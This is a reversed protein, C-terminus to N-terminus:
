ITLINVHMYLMARMTQILIKPGASCML